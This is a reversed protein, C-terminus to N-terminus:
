PSAILNWKYNVRQLNLELWQLAIITAANNIQGCRVAAFADETSVVHVKIDEHEDKLGGFKPAKTSDVKACFLQLKETSYGPSSFYDHIPILTEIELGAEELMERRILEESSEQHDKDMVGAVIEILWPTANQEIAGIRLQEILVVRNLKPDYPLAAVASKKAVFERTYEPTWSGDFRQQELTYLDIPCFGQHLSTRNKIKINKASSTQTIASM